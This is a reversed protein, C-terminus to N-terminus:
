AAPTPVVRSLILGLADEDGFGGPKLILPMGNYEGGILRGKGVGNLVKSELRIADAGSQAFVAQGVDGGCCLLGGVLKKSYCFLGIRGIWEAVKRASGREVLDGEKPASSELIAARLDRNRFTRELIRSIEETYSRSGALIKRADAEWRDVGPEASFKAVQGRSCPNLSGMLFFLPLRMDEGASSEPKIDPLRRAIAAALGASGVPLLGQQGEIALAIADLDEDTEADLCIAIGPPVASISKRLNGRAGRVASLNMELTKLKKNLIEAPRSPLVIRRGSEYIQIESLPVGDVLLIGDKVVRYQAPFSPCVIIRDIGETDLSAQLEEAVPGRMTSDIKKMLLFRNREFLMNIARRVEDGAVTSSLSRSATNLVTLDASVPTSIVGGSIEINPYKSLFPLAADCSGTLDDSVIAPLSNM